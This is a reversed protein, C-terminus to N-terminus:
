DLIDFDEGSNEQCETDNSEEIIAQGSCCASHCQIKKIIDSLSIQFPKSSSLGVNLFQNSM